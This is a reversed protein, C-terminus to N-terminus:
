YILLSATEKLNNEAIGVESKSKSIEDVNAGLKDSQLNEM